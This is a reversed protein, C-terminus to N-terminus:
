GKQGVKDGAGFYEALMYYMVARYKSRNDRGYETLCAQIGGMAKDEDTVGLRKMVWNRKVTELEKSDGGSVTESDRNYITPGCAITVRTLLDMDPERGLKDRINGAYKEIKEARKSM